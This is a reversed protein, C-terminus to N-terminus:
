DAKVYIRSGSSYCLMLVAEEIGINQTQHVKGVPIVCTEGAHLIVWSRGIRQRVIGSQVYITESCNAHSHSESIVDSALTMKALSIGADGSIADDMLWQMTVGDAM